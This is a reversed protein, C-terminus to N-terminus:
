IVRDMKCKTTLMVSAGCGYHDGGGGYRKALPAGRVTKLDPAIKAVPEDQILDLSGLRYLGTQRNQLGISMEKVKTEKFKKDPFMMALASVTLHTGIPIVDLGIIHKEMMETHLDAFDLHTGGNEGNQDQSMGYNLIMQRYVSSLLLGTGCAFDAITYQRLKAPVYTVDGPPPVVLSAILAASEPRTYYTALRDRDTIVRQFLMGYMDASTTVRKAQILSVTEDIKQIVKGAADGGLSGLIELAVEFIPAYNVDLIGGWSIELERQSIVGGVARLSALPRINLDSDNSNSSLLDHFMMANTLILGAMRWTQDSETQNLCAAITRKTSKNLREIEGEVFNMCKELMAVSSKIDEAPTSLAQAAAAIDRISGTIWGREPFRATKAPANYLLDDNGVNRSLTSSRRLVTYELDTMRMLESRLSNFEFRTLRDPIRVAMTTDIKAQTNKHILGIRSKAEKEVTTAPHIETEIIVPVSSVSEVVIDPRSNGVMIQTKEAHVDWCPNLANLVEAMASNIEPEGTRTHANRSTSRRSHM